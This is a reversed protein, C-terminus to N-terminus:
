QIRYKNELETLWTKDDKKTVIDHLEDFISELYVKRFQKNGQDTMIDRFKRETEGQKESENQKWLYRNNGIPSFVWFCFEDLERTRAVQEALLMNRWLQNLGFRFPCASLSKIKNLDFVKSKGTLEWNDYKRKYGCISTKKTQLLKQYFEKSSCITQIENKRKIREEKEQINEEKKKSPGKYSSCVSFEAEIYKFEILLVGNKNNEYTYFVAIDADTGGIASQDGISEEKTPTFEPEINIVSIEKGLLKSFLKNAIEEKHQNLYIVLNFCYPQSAATNTLARNRDGAKHDDFREKTAKFIEKTIFNLEAQEITLLHKCLKGGKSKGYETVGKRDLFESMRQYVKNQWPNGEKYIEAENM